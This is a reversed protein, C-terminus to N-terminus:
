ESTAPGNCKARRRPMFRNLYLGAVFVLAFLTAGACGAVLDFLDLERTTSLIQSLEDLSLLVLVALLLAVVPWLSKPFIVLLASAMLASGMMCHVIKDGGLGEQLSYFDDLFYGLSRLASATVLSLVILVAVVIRIRTSLAMNILSSM